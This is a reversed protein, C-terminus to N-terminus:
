WHFSQVAQMGVRDCHPRIMRPKSRSAASTTKTWLLLTANTLAPVASVEATCLLKNSLLFQIMVQDAKSTIVPAINVMSISKDTGTVIVSRAPLRTDLAIRAYIRCKKTGERFSRLHNCQNDKDKKNEEYKPIFNKTKIM